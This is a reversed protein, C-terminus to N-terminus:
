NVYFTIGTSIESKLSSLDSSSIQMGNDYSSGGAYIFGISEGSAFYISSTLDSNNKFWFVPTASNFDATTNDADSIDLESLDDDTANTIYQGFSDSNSDTVIADNSGASVLRKITYKGKSVKSSTVNIYGDQAVYKNGTKTMLALNNSSSDYYLVYKGTLGAAVLADEADSSFKLSSVIDVKAPTYKQTLPSNKLEELEQKAAAVQTSENKHNSYYDRMQEVASAWQKKISKNKILKYYTSSMSVKKFTLSSNDDNFKNWVKSIYKDADQTQEYWIQITDLKNRLKQYVDQNKENLLDKDLNNIKDNTVDDKYNNKGDYLASIDSSRKKRASIYTELEKYKKVNSTTIVHGDSVDILKGIVNLSHYDLDTKLVELEKDQYQDSIKSTVVANVVGRSLMVFFIVATIIGVAASIILMYDKSGRLDKKDKM